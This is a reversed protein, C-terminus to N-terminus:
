KHQEEPPVAAYLVIDVVADGVPLYRPVIGCRYLGCTAALRQSATHDLRMAVYFQQFGLTTLIMDRMPTYMRLGVAGRYAPLLYIDANCHLPRRTQPHAVINNLFCAGARQGDVTGLIVLEQSGLRGLLDELSTPSWATWYWLMTDQRMADWIAAIDEVSPNLTLHISAPSTPASRRKTRPRTTRAAM